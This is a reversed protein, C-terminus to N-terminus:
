LRSKGAFFIEICTVNTYYFFLLMCTYTTAASCHYCYSSLICICIGSELDQLYVDEWWVVLATGPFHLNFNLYLTCHVYSQYFFEKAGYLYWQRLYYHM